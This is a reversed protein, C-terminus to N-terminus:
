EAILAGQATDQHFDGYFRYRGPALPRIRIIGQGGGVVIKEVRLTLSEFEEPTADRNKVTLVLPKGAPVHIEVPQFRHNKISIEVNANEAAAVPLLGIAFFLAATLALRRCRGNSRLTM